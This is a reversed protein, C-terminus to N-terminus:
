NANYRMGMYADGNRLEDLMQTLRKQRTEERKGRIIWGIYDNCQYPPRARYQEWLGSEDLASVIFDPIDYVKRKMRSADLDNKMDDGMSKHQDAIYSQKRIRAYLLDAGKRFPNTTDIDISQHPLPLLIQVRVFLTLTQRAVM